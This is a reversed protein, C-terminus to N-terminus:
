RQPGQGRRQFSPRVHVNRARSRGAQHGPPPVARLLARAAVASLVRAVSRLGVRAPQHLGREARTDAARLQVALLSCRGRGAVRRDRRADRRVPGVAGPAARRRRGSRPSQPGRRPEHLRQRRRSRHVRRPRDRGRCAVQRRSRLKRAVDVITRDRGAARRRRRDRGVRGRHDRHLPRACRRHRRHRAHGRHGCALLGLVGPRPHDAVPLLRWPRRADAGAARGPRPDLVALAVRAGRRGAPHLHTRAPRVDRHGLLHPRRLWPRDAGEGSDRPRRHTRGGAPRPLARLSRGASHRRRGRGRRGRRGLIRRPLQAARRATRRVRALRAVTM